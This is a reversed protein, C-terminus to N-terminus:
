NQALVRDDLVNVSTRLSEPYHHAYRQTTVISNHGLLEKVKYLDIGAQVLRTAFSHRLDHFTLGTIKAQNLARRFARRLHHQDIMTDTGTHFVLRTQISRGTYKHKLLALVTTNLPITRQEGNKSRIVMVTKRFLDVEDWTLALIEGLRMGSHLGLVVIDRLWPSSANLLRNEEEQRLWRDRRNNEKDFKVSAVPNKTCWEWERKGLNFAHKLLALERNVTAPKVGKAYRQTRYQVILKPTIDALVYDGFFPRLNKLYGKYSRQSAKKPIEEAAYRDLLEAGTREREESAEFFRGEQIKALVSGYIAEALKQNSTGTSRRVQQGKYTLRMWWVKRRKYLGM